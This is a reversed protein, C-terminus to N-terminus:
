NQNILDFRSQVEPIDYIADIELTNGINNNQYVLVSILLTFLMISLIKLKIM